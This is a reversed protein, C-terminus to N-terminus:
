TEPMAEAVRAMESASTEGPPHTDESFLISHSLLRAPSGLSPHARRPSLSNSYSQPPLHSGHKMVSPNNNEDTFNSKGVNLQVLYILLCHSRGGTRALDFAKTRRGTETAALAISLAGVRNECPSTGPGARSSGPRNGM